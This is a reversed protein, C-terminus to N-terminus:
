QGSLFKQVAEQANDTLKVSLVMEDESEASVVRLGMAEVIALAIGQCVELEDMADEESADIDGLFYWICDALYWLLSLRAEDASPKQQEEM